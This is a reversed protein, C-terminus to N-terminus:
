SRVIRSVVSSTADDAPTFHAVLFREDAATTTRWITFL